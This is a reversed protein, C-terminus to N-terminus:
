GSFGMAEIMQKKREFDPHPVHYFPAFIDPHARIMPQYRAVDALVINSQVDPDYVLQDRYQEFLASRTMPSWLHLQVQVGYTQLFAALLLTEELDSLEEFPFGWMFSAIVQPFHEKARPVVDCIQARTVGKRVARLMRDSGSEVGFYFDQCNAQAMLKMLEPEVGDVRAACGWRFNWGGNLYEHCFAAARQRRATFTDDSFGFSAIGHRTQLLRIEAFLRPVSYFTVKREWFAVSECYTCAFPCGRSSMVTITPNYASFDVLDHAPLPITDFDTIRPPPPNVVVHGNQRYVLGTVERWSDSSPYQRVFEPVSQEGEGYFAFDIFPFERVIGEIAAQTGCGGFLITTQPSVAKLARAAEVAYPLMNSMTSFGVIPPIEGLWNPFEDPALPWQDEATALDVFRVPTGSERIASALSLLGPPPVQLGGVADHPTVCNVLTIV